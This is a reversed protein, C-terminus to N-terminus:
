PQNGAKGVKMELFHVPGIRYGAIGGELPGHAIAAFAVPRREHMGVHDTRIRMREGIVFPQVTGIGLPFAIRLAIGDRARLHKKQALADKILLSDVLEFLFNFGLQM